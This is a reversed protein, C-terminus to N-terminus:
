GYRQRRLPTGRKRRVARKAGVSSSVEGLHHIRMEPRNTLKVTLELEGGAAAFPPSICIPKSRSGPSRPNSIKLASAIDAQAKSAIQRLERLGEVEQKLERYRAEVAAQRKSPLGAIIKKLSRGM